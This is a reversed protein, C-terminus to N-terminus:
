VGKGTEAELLEIQLELRRRDLKDIRRRRVQGILLVLSLLAATCAAVDEWAIMNFVDGLWAAITTGSVCWGIQPSQILEEAGKALTSTASEGSVEM